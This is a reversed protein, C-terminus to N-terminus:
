VKLTNPAVKGFCQVEKRPDHTEPTDVGILRITEVKGDIRVSLTDGDVARIVTTTGPMSITQLQDLADPNLVLYVLAALISLATSILARRKRPRLRLPKNVEDM